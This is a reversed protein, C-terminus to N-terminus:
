VLGRWRGSRAQLSEIYEDTVAGRDAFPLTALANFEEELWGVGAGLIVRGASFQDYTAFM